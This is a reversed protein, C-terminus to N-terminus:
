RKQMPIICKAHKIEESSLPLRLRQGPFILDPDKIKKRNSCFVVPWRQSGYFHEAIKSLCDGMVVEYAPPLGQSGQGQEGAQNPNSQGQAAGQGQQKQNDPPPIHAGFQLAALPHVEMHGHPHDSDTDKDWMMPGRFGIVDSPEPTRAAVSDHADTGPIIELRIYRGTPDEETGQITFKSIALDVTWFGDTSIQGERVPRGIGVADCGTPEWAGYGDVISSLYKFPTSAAGVLRSPDDLTKKPITMVRGFQEQPNCDPHGKWHSVTDYIFKSVAQLPSPAGFFVVGVLPDAMTVATVAGTVAVQITGNIITKGGDQITKWGEAPHGTIVQGAGQFVQGGGQVVKKGGDLVAEGGSKLTNGVDHAKNEVQCWSWPDCSFAPSPTLVVIVLVTAVCRTSVTNLSM